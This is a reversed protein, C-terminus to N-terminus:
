SAAEKSAAREGPSNPAKSALKRAVQSALRRVSSDADSRSMEEARAALQPIGLRDVLWLASVRHARRPDNLMRHLSEAANPVRHMLLARIANARVRNDGHDLFPTIVKPRFGDRLRALADIANAIVRPDSDFMARELIRRSGGTAVQALATMVMSRVYGDEDTSLQALEGIFLDVIRLSSIMRLARGRQDSNKSLLMATTRSLFSRPGARLRQGLLAADAADLQEFCEWVDDFQQEPRTPAGGRESAHRRRIAGHLTRRRQLARAAIRRVEPDEHRAARELALSSVQGSAGVLAWVTARVTEPCPASLLQTLIEQKLDAPLGSAMLWAPARHQTAEPLDQIAEAGDVLWALQRVHAWGRALAADKLLWSRDIMAAFFAPDERSAIRKLATNRTEPRTLALYAFTALRPSDSRAFVENMAHTFMGRRQGAQEFLKSKLELPFMMAAEVVEFHHHEGYNTLAETLTQVLYKREEHVIQMVRLGVSAAEADDTAADRLLSLTEEETRYYAEALAHLATAAAQRIRASADNVAASLLYALRQNEARHIITVANERTELRASRVAVRLAAFFKSNQRVIEDRTAERFQDFSSVLALLGTQSARALLVDAARTRYPEDLLPLADALADDAASLPSRRLLDYIACREPM